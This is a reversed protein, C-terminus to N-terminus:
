HVPQELHWQYSAVVVNGSDNYVVSECLRHVLAVGRGSRLDNEELKPQSKSTDFGKGSDRVEIRVEGGNDTRQHALSVEISAHDLESIREEKLNYYEVFGEPSEKLSSDLGLLGHDLANSYLEALVLFVRERHDTPAPFDNWANMIIPLPDIRRLTDAGFHWNISWDSVIADLDLDVKEGEQVNFMPKSCDIRVVSVDDETPEDGLHEQIDTLVNSILDEDGSELCKQLRDHGYMEGDSNKAEVVGDSIALIQLKSDLEVVEVRRYDPTSPIVGLSLHTSRIRRKVHRNGDIVWIDPLGGNWISATTKFPDIEIVAAACFLGAPLLRCLRDNIERVTDGVSFGKSSMAYFSGAVPVACVAAPLGHGTFDGLFIMLSGSPTRNAIVLDGCFSEMGQVAFTLCPSDIHKAGTIKSMIGEAHMLDKELLSQQRMLDLHQEHVRSHLVRIRDLSKIKARLVVRNYPKALFDDGGAEICRALDEEDSMATLFLIPVFVNGLGSCMSKILRSAELGDMVPMMVDMLILDPHFEFFKGVGASGDEALEIEHGEVELLKKLLRSNAHDDDVVLIRM